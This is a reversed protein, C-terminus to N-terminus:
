GATWVSAGGDVPLSVGTIFGAEDSALFLAADAVDWATGMRHRLPVKSDREAIVQERTKNWAKIRAEVAMPTNMLGPLIVNARIGHEANQYALQETFAIVGAKSAKYAVYPYREIAAISSINVIAGSRQARMIPITHKCAFVMSRLNIAMVRDFGEATINELTADGGALSVGVNNHLVDIRGWRRVCENIAAIVSPEDTVDAKCPAAAGGEKEIAAVTDAASELDRDVCLVKAGERAFLLATARGNGMTQGPTQGAGVVIAIKDKLRMDISRELRARQPHNLTELEPMSARRGANAGRVAHLAALYAFTMGPGLQAGAGPYEGGMPSHMDNGVAYLGSIPERASNLVQANEDTRLGLSTGLPTPEVQVAYFQAQEIMGLCPNPRHQPDGNGLDYANGGKGFDLDCGTRAFENHRRVTDLLGAPDVGIAGALGALTDARRLYGRAIFRGVRLTMPRIMGLGYRWLFRRDCVLWVPLTSTRYMARTFEHYSAAENTFRRGDRGVAILGPKARDLVIHPYVATTGDARKAISSPFWFANDEGGPGLAGGAEQGMRLTEGVCGEAAPTFRAVPERFHQERMQASAPFGGGALVVGCRAALQSTKGGHEVVAGVVRDHEVVLRRTRAACRVPVQRDLLSKFLRAVLANGLVLRTGRRYHLRDALYRAVLSAAFLAGDLSRFSQLLRAAEARTVMMGGFLMLEPLPSAVRDFHEGLERGDFAPPELPRGGLAAGPLEQRYDPHNEYPRFRFGAHQELYAIM